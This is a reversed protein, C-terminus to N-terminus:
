PLNGQSLEVEEATLNHPWTPDQLKPNIIKQDFDLWIRSDNRCDYARCPLPRQAHVTCNQCQRDFHHCYGDEGKAIVYPHHLEWKLVREEIDQRSLSFVMKCCAAKCLQVRNECDIAIAPEFTYKDQGSEQLSIGGDRQTFRKLIREAIQQKRQDLENISIINQEALIEILAYVFASSELTRGAIANARQHLYAIGGAVEDYSVAENLM